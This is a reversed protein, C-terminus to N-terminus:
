SLRSGFAGSPHYLGHSEEVNLTKRPIVKYNEIGELSATDPSKNSIVCCEANQFATRCTQGIEMPLLTFWEASSEPKIGANTRCTGVPLRLCGVTILDATPM